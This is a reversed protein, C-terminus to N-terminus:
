GPVRRERLGRGRVLGPLVPGPRRGPPSVEPTVRPPKVGGSGVADPCATGMQPCRPSTQAADEMWAGELQPHGPTAHGHYLPM